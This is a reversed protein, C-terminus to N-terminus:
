GAPTATLLGGLYGRRFPEPQMALSNPFGIGFLLPSFDRSYGMYFSVVKGKPLGPSCLSMGHKDSADTTSDKMDAGDRVIVGERRILIDM